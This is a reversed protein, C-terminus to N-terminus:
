FKRLLGENMHADTMDLLTLILAMVITAMRKTMSYSKM